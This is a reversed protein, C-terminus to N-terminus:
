DSKKYRKGDGRRHGRERLLDGSVADYDLKLIRGDATLLKMEYRGNRQEKGEGSRKKDHHHDDDDKDDDEFKLDLVSGGYDALAREVITALPLIRGAAVAERARRVDDDATVRTPLCTAVTAVVAFAVFCVKPM